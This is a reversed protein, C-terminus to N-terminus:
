GARFRKLLGLWRERTRWIFFGALGLGFIITGPEPIPLMDGPVIEGTALIIAGYHGPALGAPDIFRIHQLQGSTLGAASTGFYIQDDGGGVVPTGKWNEIRLRTNAAWTESSSNAVQLTTLGGSGLDITSQVLGVAASDRTLTMTGKFEALQTGSDAFLLTGGRMDLQTRRSAAQRDNIIDGGDNKTLYLTGSALRIGPMDTIVGDFRAQGAPDMRVVLVASSGTINDLGTAATFRIEETGRLSLDKANNNFFVTQTFTLGGTGSDWISRAM